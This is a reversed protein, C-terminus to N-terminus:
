SFIRTTMASSTTRTPRRRSGPSSTSTSPRAVGPIARVATEIDRPPIHQLVRNSVALDVKGGISDPSIDLVPLLRVDASPFREKALRVAVSSLDCGVFREFGCRIYLPFLRGSGCGVDLVTRTGVVQACEAVVAYDGESAGWKEHMPKALGDWFHRNAWQPAVARAVTWAIRRGKRLTSRIGL